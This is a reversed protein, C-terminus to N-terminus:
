VYLDTAYQYRLRLRRRLAALALLALLVAAAAALLRALAGPCLARRADVPVFAPRQSLSRIIAELGCNAAASGSNVVQIALSRGPPAICTGVNLTQVDISQVLAAHARCKRELRSEEHSAAELDVGVQAAIEARQKPPLLNVTEAFAELLLRFSLQDNNNCRNLIRVSCNQLTGVIRGVHIACTVSNTTSYLSLKRLYRAVFAGYLTSLAASAM